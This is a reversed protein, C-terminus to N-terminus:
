NLAKWNYSQRYFPPLHGTQTHHWLVFALTGPNAYGGGKIPGFQPEFPSLLQELLRDRHDKALISAAAVQPHNLDAKNQARVKPGCLPGFLGAGDLMVQSNPFARIIRSAMERELENLGGRRVYTDVKEASATEIQYPFQAKIQEALEARRAIAKAGAGFTKSDAVGWKQLLTLQSNKVVVGALVLPGLVPGRGAEDIGLLLDM